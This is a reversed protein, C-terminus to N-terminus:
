RQLSSFTSRLVWPTVGGLIASYNADNTSPRVWRRAGDAAHARSSAPSLDEEVDDVQVFDLTEGEELGQKLVEM